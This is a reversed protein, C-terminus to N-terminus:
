KNPTRKPNQPFWGKKVREKQEKLEKISWLCTFGVVSLGSSLIVHSVFVSGVCCIFGAVLFVPWIKYSFYYECKIVIPHFLGIVFFVVIGILIGSWHM